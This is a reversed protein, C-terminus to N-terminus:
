TLFFQKRCTTGGRQPIPRWDAHGGIEHSVHQNVVAAPLMPAGPKGCEPDLARVHLVPRNEVLGRKGDIGSNGTLHVMAATFGTLTAALTAGYLLTTALGRSAVSAVAVLPLVLLVAISSLILTLM